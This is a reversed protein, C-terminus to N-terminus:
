GRNKAVWELILANVQEPKEQHLFHGAGSIESVRYGAPFDESPMAKRFIDAGICGDKEGCLGLVPVALPSALL